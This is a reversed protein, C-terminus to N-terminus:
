SKRLADEPFMSEIRQSTKKSSDGATRGPRGKLSLWSLAGFAAAWWGIQLVGAWVPTLGEAAIVSAVFFSATFGLYSAGACLAAVGLWLLRRTIKWNSGISLGLACLLFFQMQWLGAAGPPIAVKISDAGLTTGQVTVVGILPRAVAGSVAALLDRWPYGLLNAEPDAWPFAFLLFVFSWARSRTTEVGSCLSSIAIALAAIGISVFVVAFNWALAFCTFAVILAVLIPLRNEWEHEVAPRGSERHLSWVALGSAAAGFWITDILPFGLLISFIV